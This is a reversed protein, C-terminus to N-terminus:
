GDCRMDWWMTHVPERILISKLLAIAKSLGEERNMLCDEFEISLTGDYGVEALAYIMDRWTKESSGYGCSRFNWSRTFFESYPKPDLMGNKEVIEHNIFVDKAHCHFIAKGLARIVVSPNAGQWIFHSPDFNCGLNDGVADRLKLMSELNYVCFNPHPEVALRVGHAKAFDNAKQWYPILVENWQYDYAKSFDNPWPAVIWNPVTENPGGGPTGSLLNIIDVGMEAAVIVSKQFGEHHSTAIEKDPHVPNGACGLASIKIGRSEIKRQFSHIKYRNEYLDDINIHNSLSYAATGLEICDLGLKCYIDLVEDLPLDNFLVSFAGLKM